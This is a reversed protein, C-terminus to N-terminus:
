GDKKMQAGRAGKSELQASPHGHSVSAALAGDAQKTVVPRGQSGSRSLQMRQGWAGHPQLWRLPGVAAGDDPRAPADGYRRRWTFPGLRHPRGPRALHSGPDGQITCRMSSIIMRCQVM